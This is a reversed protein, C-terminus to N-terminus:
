VYRCVKVRWFGKIRGIQATEANRGSREIPMACAFPAMQSVHLGNVGSKPPEIFSSMNGSLVFNKLVASM